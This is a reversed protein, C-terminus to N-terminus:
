NIKSRMSKMRVGSSSKDPMENRSLLSISRRVLCILKPQRRAPCDMMLTKFSSLSSMSFKQSLKMNIKKNSSLKSKNLIHNRIKKSSTSKQKSYKEKIKVKKLRNRSASYNHM